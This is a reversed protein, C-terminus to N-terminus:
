LLWGFIKKMLAIIKGWFTLSPQLVPACGVTENWAFGQRCDCRFITKKAFDAQPEGPEVPKRLGPDYITANVVGGTTQCLSLKAEDVPPPSFALVCAGLLVLALVAKRMQSM